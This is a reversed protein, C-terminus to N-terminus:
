WSCICTRKAYRNKYLVTLKSGIRKCMHKLFCWFHLELAEFIYVNEPPPVGGGGRKRVFSLSPGNSFYHPPRVKEVQVFIKKFKKSTDIM